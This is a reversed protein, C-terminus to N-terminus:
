KGVARELADSTVHRVDRGLVVYVVYESINKAHDGIRELSRAVFVLELAPTITRPDEIMYTLLQRMIARFHEDLQEDQKQIAVAEAAERRAFADLARKLMAVAQDALTRIEAHGQRLCDRAAMRQAALAIKKAEDGIRELDTVIKMAAMVFRLDVAAPFRRALVQTLHQDIDREMTNVRAEETMVKAAADSAGTRLAEMAYRIQYEVIGGMELIRSRLSDLDEDFVTHTHSTTQV